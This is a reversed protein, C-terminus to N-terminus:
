SKGPYIWHLPVKIDTVRARAQLSLLVCVDCAYFGITFLRLGNQAPSDIFTQINEMDNSM